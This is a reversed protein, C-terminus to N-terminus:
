MAGKRKKRGSRKVGREAEAGPNAEKWRQLYSAPCVGYWRKFEESFDTPHRFGYDHALSKLTEGTRVRLRFEVARLSRLWYGASRGVDEQVVRHFTRVGLGLAAALEKLDYRTRRMVSSIERVTGDHASRFWWFGDAYWIRAKTGQREGPTPPPTSSPDPHPNGQM